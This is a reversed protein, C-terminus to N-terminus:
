VQVEGALFVWATPYRWSTGSRRDMDGRGAERFDKGSAQQANQM